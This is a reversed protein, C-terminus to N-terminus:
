KRNRYICNEDSCVACTHPKYDVEKGIGIIGSVSKIPNMLASKTLQIDFTNNSFFKFLTFQEEVNWSCYGPSFRNTAKLDRKALLAMLQQHIGEATEEAFESGLLDFIYGELLDAENMKQKSLKEIGNGITCIFLAIQDAKKLQSTIIKGVHLVEDNVTVEGKAYNFDQIESLVVGGSPNLAQKAIVTCKEIAEEFHADGTNEEYGLLKLIREKSVVFQEKDISIPIVENKIMM